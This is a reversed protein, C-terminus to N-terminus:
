DQKFCPHQEVWTALDQPTGRFVNLDVDTSIGKVSGTSKYQWFIWNRNQFSPPWFQSPVWYKQDRDMVTILGAEFRSPAYIIPRCGTKKEIINSLTYIQREIDKPTNVMNCGGENEVDIVPPLQGHDPPLIRLFNEAQIAVPRCISFFHYAGVILGADRAAKWNRKFAPDAFDGGETAKIYAFALNSSTTKSWDIQGQHHSLDIGRAGKWLYFFDRYPSGLYFIGSVVIITFIWAKSNGM